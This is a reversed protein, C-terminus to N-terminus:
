TKASEEGRVNEAQASELEGSQEALRDLHAAATLLERALRADGSEVGTELGVAGPIEHLLLSAAATSAAKPSEQRQLFEHVIDRILFSISRRERVAVDRLVDLDAAELNIGITRKTKAM